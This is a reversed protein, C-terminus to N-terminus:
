KRQHYTLALQICDRLATTPLPAHADLILARSGEYTLHPHRQRYTAILSTQCHVFLAIQGQNVNYADLRITTGSKPKVTLYSPQGWKLIEVINGVGPTAVATELLLARLEWLKDRIPQPYRNFVATVEIFPELNSKNNM